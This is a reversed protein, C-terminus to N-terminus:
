EQPLVTIEGLPLVAEWETEGGRLHYPLGVGVALTTSGPETLRPVVVAYDEVVV